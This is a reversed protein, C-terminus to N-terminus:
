KALHADRQKKSLKRWLWPEMSKPHQWLGLRSTRAQRELLAYSDDKSYQKYHWALGNKVLHKNVLLTDNVWVEAIYRKNRDRNNHHVVKVMKGYCLSSTYQKAVSAYPQRSEPCDIHALRIVYPTNDVLVEITDGDKVGIVKGYFFNGSLLLVNLTITTFYTYLSSM